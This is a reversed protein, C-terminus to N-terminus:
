RKRRPKEEAAALLDGFTGLSQESSGFAAVAEREEASDAENKARDISLAIRRRERDVSVVTATVRDGVDVVKRAHAIREGGGMESVHVLGDIGEALEVFAGFAEVKRVTGTVARGVPAIDAIDDWPDKALSKLSLGIRERQKDDDTAEIKVVQVEVVQDEALVESPHRVRAFGLESVHLLGEIGGIDVFAGFKEIRRVTGHFVAGVELRKRTEASREAAEEELLARRSVVINAAGRRGAEFRTIRFQHRQGVFVSPDEVYRLDMQSVPCFARNGAVQVYFGGSNVAAVVGEVPIGHEFATALEDAADAGRGLSRRLVVVGSREGTDVVRAEVEDGVAVTLEGDDDLVQSRELVGESKGGLDVFVSDRDISVVTGRAVDGVSLGGDASQSAESADFMAAFDEVPTQEEDSM